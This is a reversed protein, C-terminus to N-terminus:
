EAGLEPGSPFFGQKCAPCYYYGRELQTEGERHLVQRSKKGKYQVAGECHPCSPTEWGLEAETSLEDMLKGMLARREQSAQEAIEDFTADPHARRWARLRRHMEEAAAGFEARKKEESETRRM